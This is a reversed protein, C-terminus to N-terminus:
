VGRRSWLFIALVVLALVAFASWQGIETDAIPALLDVVGTLQLLALAVLVVALISIVGISAWEKAMWTAEREAQEESTTPEEVAEEDPEEM